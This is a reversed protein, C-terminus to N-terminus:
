PQTVTAEANTTAPPQTAWLFRLLGWTLSTGSTDHEAEFRTQQALALALADVSDDGCSHDLLTYLVLGDAGVGVRIQTPPLPMPTTLIPLPPTHVVVRDELTGLVHFISQNVPVTSGGLEDTNSDESTAATKEATALVATDVPTAELLLHPQSPAEADLFAPQEDWGLYHLTAEIKHRWMGSSFGHASPLSMLSPDFLDAVVYRSDSPSFPNQSSPQMVSIHPLERTPTTLVGGSFRFFVFMVGFAVLSGALIWLLLQGQGFDLKPVRRM